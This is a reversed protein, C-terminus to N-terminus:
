FETRIDLECMESILCCIDHGAIKGLVETAMAVNCNRRIRDRFREKIMSFDPEANSRKHCCQLFDERKFSLLPIDNGVLRRRCYSRAVARARCKSPPARMEWGRGVCKQGGFHGPISMTAMMRHRSSDSGVRRILRYPELPQGPAAEQVARRKGGENFYIALKRSVILWFDQHLEAALESVHAQM